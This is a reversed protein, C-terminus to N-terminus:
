YSYPGAPFIAKEYMEIAPKDKFVEREDRIKHVALGTESFIYYKIVWFM